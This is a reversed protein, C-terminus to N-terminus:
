GNDLEIARLVDSFSQNASLNLSTNLMCRPKVPTLGVIGLERLSGTVAGGTVNLPSSELTQCWPPSAGGCSLSSFRHPPPPPYTANEDSFIGSDAIADRRYVPSLGRSPTSTLSIRHTRPPTALERQLWGVRPSDFLRMADGDWSSLFLSDSTALTPDDPTPPAVAEARERQQTKTRKTGRLIRPRTVARPISGGAAAPKRKAASRTRQARSGESSAAPVRPASEVLDAHLASPLANNYRAAKMNSLLEGMAPSATVVRAGFDIRLSANYTSLDYAAASAPKPLIARIHRGVGAVPLSQLQQQSPQQVVPQFGGVSDLQVCTLPVLLTSGLHMKPLLVPTAIPHSVAEALREKSDQGAMVAMNLKWLSPGNSSQPFSPPERVFLDYLSLNHRISNKWGQSCTKFYPFNQEIWTYIERLTLKGSPAAILALRILHMYSHNPRASDMMRSRYQGRKISAAPAYTTTAQMSEVASTEECPNGEAKKSCEACSDLEMKRRARVGMPRLTEAKVRGRRQKAFKLFTRTSDSGDISDTRVHSCTSQQVCSSTAAVTSTQNVIHTDSRDQTNAAGWDDKFVHMYTTANGVSSEFYEMQRVLDPTSTRVTKMKGGSIIVTQASSASIEGEASKQSLEHKSTTLTGLYFHSAPHSPTEM